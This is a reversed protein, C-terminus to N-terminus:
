KKLLEPVGMEYAAHLHTRFVLSNHNYYRPDLFEKESGPACFIKSLAAATSPSRYKGATCHVVVLKTDKHEQMFKITEIADSPQILKAIETKGNITNRYTQGKYVSELDHYYVYHGAVLTKHHSVDPKIEESDNISVLIFPETIKAALMNKRSLVVFKFM